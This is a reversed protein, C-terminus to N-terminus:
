TSSSSTGFLAVEEIVSPMDDWCDRLDRDSKYSQILVLESAPRLISISETRGWSVGKDYIPVLGNKSGHCGFSANAVAGNMSTTFDLGRRLDPAVKIALAVPGGCSPATSRSSGM